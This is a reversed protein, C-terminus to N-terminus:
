LGLEGSFQSYLSLAEGTGAADGKLETARIRAFPLMARIVHQEAKHLHEQFTSRAAGLAESVDDMTVRRPFDYYGADFAAVLADAQKQTLSSLFLPSRLADRAASGNSLARKSLLRADPFLAEVDRLDVDTSVLLTVHAEGRTWRIPPVVHAAHDALFRIVEGETEGGELVCTVRGKGLLSHALSGKRELASVTEELDEEVGFAQLAIHPGLPYVDITLGEHRATLAQLSGSSKTAFVVKYSLSTAGDAPGPRDELHVDAEDIKIDM